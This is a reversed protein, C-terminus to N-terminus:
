GESVVIEIEGKGERVAVRVNDFTFGFPVETMVVDFGLAKSLAKGYERIDERKKEDQWREYLGAVLRTSAKVKQVKVSDQRGQWWGWDGSGIPYVHVTRGEYEIDRGMASGAQGLSRQAPEWSYTDTTEDFRTADRFRRQLRAMIRDAESREFMPCAFGKWKEGFTYGEFVEDDEGPIRVFFTEKTAKQQEEM